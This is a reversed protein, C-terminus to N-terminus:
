TAHDSHSTAVPTAQQNLYCRATVLDLGAAAPGDLTRSCGIRAASTIAASEIAVSRPVPLRELVRHARGHERDAEALEGTRRGLLERVGVVDGQQVGGAAGRVPVLGRLQEAVVDRM